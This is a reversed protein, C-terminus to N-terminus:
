RAGGVLMEETRKQEIGYSNGIVITRLNDRERESKLIYAFISGASLSQSSLVEMYRRILSSRMESEFLRLDGEANYSEVATHLDYRDQLKAAIDAVNGSGFLSQLNEPTMNGYPLLQDRIKDFPVNMDKAALIVMINKNDVEERFFRILPGEDGNFFKLSTMLRSYYYKDLAQLMPAIDNDKRYNELYQLIQQGYGFRTLNEAVAEIGSQNILVRFDDNTMIGGFIGLPVDRFSVLFTETEKVDYGLYKSTLISKINQVDWKSMYSRLLDSTMPPAAFLAIKNRTVLRRNAAMELLDPNTYLSYLATIDDKYVTASLTRTIDELSMPILGSMFSDSLFETQAVKIRGYSGSYTPDM